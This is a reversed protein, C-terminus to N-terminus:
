KTLKQLVFDNIEKKPIGLQLFIDEYNESKFLELVKTAGYNKLVYEIILAGLTNSLQTESDLTKYTNSQESLDIANERLYRKVNTSHFDYNKNAGGGYYTAIGEHLMPLADPYLPIMVAHVLEHIHNLRTSLVTRPYITLGAYLKESRMRTYTIGLMSNCEDINNAMIYTIINNDIINYQKKFDHVFRVVEDVQEKKFDLGPLYYYDICSTTYRNLSYKKVDFYNLLKFHGNAITACVKYIYDIFFDGAKTRFLLSMSNIEYITDNLKRINFTYQEGTKYLLSKNSYRTYKIIDESDNLWLDMRVSDPNGSSFSLIYKEWIDAIESVTEDELFASLEPGFTLKQGSSIYATSVFLFLLYIKRM